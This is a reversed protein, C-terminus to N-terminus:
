FSGGFGLGARVCVRVSYGVWQQATYVGKQQQVCMRAGLVVM